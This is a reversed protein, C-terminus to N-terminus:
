LVTPQAIVSRVVLEYPFAYGPEHGALREIIREDGRLRQASFFNSSNKCTKSFVDAVPRFRLLHRIVIQLNKLADPLLPQLRFDGDFQRLQPQVKGGFDTKPMQLRDDRARGLLGDDPDIHFRAVVHVHGEVQVAACEALKGVHAYAQLRIKVPCFFIKSLQQRLPRRDSQDFACIHLRGLSRKRTLRVHIRIVEREAFLQKLGLLFFSAQSHRKRRVVHPHDAPERLLGHLFAKRLSIELHLHEVADLAALLLPQSRLSASRDNEYRIPREPIRPEHPPQRLTRRVQPEDRAVHKGSLRSALIGTLERYQGQRRACDRSHLLCVDPRSINELPSHSGPIGELCSCGLARCGDSCVPGTGWIIGGFLGLLHGSAPGRFFDSFNVPIGVLPKRMFYVNWLFCSLLAGLTFFVGVSYPGLTRGQTMAHTVFPAWLGMLIGSVVSVLLSRRSLPSAAKQLSAYAQGDLIVALIASAVGAALLAPNGKPEIIYSSVVGVVLAIGISVPFATALGAMDIAAVLLLNALNFVVGGVLTYYFNATDAARVNNLFSSVDETTSGMTFALVVSILFIGIAYDWYFLEFRYNKVGKYTNAWSGWCIASSIMMLLAFGVSHPVFM